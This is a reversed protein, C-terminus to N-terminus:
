AASLIRETAVPGYGATACGGLGMLIAAAVVVAGSWGRHGNMTDEGKLRGRPPGPVIGSAKGALDRCSPEGSISRLPWAWAGRRRSGRRPLWGRRPIRGGSLGGVRGRGRSP